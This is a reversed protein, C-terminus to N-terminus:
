SLGKGGENVDLALQDLNHWPRKTAPAEGQAIENYSIGTRDLHTFRTVM